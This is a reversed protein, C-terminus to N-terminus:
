QEAKQLAPLPWETSEQAMAKYYDATSQTIAGFLLLKEEGSVVTDIGEAFEFCVRNRGEQKARYLQRDAREVWLSPDFRIWQPTYAGGVSVSLDISLEDSIVCPSSAMAMRVREGVELGYSHSCNPLILAFEEGGYRAVSDMPRVCKKLRAAVQRLVEDGVPHGYTDNIRKFHDIDVLMLLAVDGSRTSRDVERQIVSSFSRRNLLGTLADLSSLNRLEQFVAVLYREVSGTFVPPSVGNQVILQVAADLEIEDLRM